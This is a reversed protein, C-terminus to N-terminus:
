LLDRRDLADALSLRARVLRAQTLPVSLRLANSVAGTSLGDRYALLLASQEREALTAFAQEFSLVRVIRADAARANRPQWGQAAVNSVEGKRLAARETCWRRLAAVALAEFSSVV